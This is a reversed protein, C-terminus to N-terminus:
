DRGASDGAVQSGSGLGDREALWEDLLLPMRRELFRFFGAM